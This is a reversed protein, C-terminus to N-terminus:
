SKGNQRSGRRAMPDPYLKLTTAPAQGNELPFSRIPEFMKENYALIKRIRKKEEESLRKGYQRLVRQYRAEVEASEAADNEASKATPSQAAPTPTSAVGLVAAVGALAASQGFKRRSLGRGSETDIKKPTM